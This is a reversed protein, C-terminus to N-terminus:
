ILREGEELINERILPHISKYTILDVKKGTNDELELKLGVFELGMGKTPEILIDIYSKDTQDGRAYSGFMAAKKIGYKKLTKVIKQKLKDIDEM